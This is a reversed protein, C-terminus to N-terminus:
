DPSILRSLLIACLAVIAALTGIRVILLVTARSIGREREYYALFSEAGRDGIIAILIATGWFGSLLGCSFISIINAMTPALKNSGVILFPVGSGLIFFIASVYELIQNRLRHKVSGSKRSQDAKASSRRSLLVGIFSALLTAALAALVITWSKEGSV